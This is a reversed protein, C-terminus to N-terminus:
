FSELVCEERTSEKWRSLGLRQVAFVEASLRERRRTERENDTCSLNNHSCFEM